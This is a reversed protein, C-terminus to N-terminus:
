EQQRCICVAGIGRCGVFLAAVQMTLDLCVGDSETYSGPWSLHCHTGAEAPHQGRPGAAPAQREGAGAGADADAEARGADDAAM